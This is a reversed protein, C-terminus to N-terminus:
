GGQKIYKNNIRVALSGIGLFLVGVLILAIPWGVNNAFHEATFKGIYWLMSVTGILLISRSRVATSLYITFACLGLFLIDANRDDLLDYATFMLGFTGIFYWFPAIAAHPSRSIRYTLCLLSISVILGAFDYNMGILKFLASFFACFFFVSTLALVTVQKKWFILGQQILMLFSVFAVAQTVNGGSSFEELMVMLGLPELFAAILFLPTAARRYREDNLSAVGMIFVVFGLGLTVLIRSASGMDDWFMGIFAGIGSLILIGGIYGFIKKLMNSGSNTKDASSGAVALAASIDAATLGNNRAITVIDALADQRNISM